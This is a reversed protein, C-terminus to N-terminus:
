LNSTSGSDRGARGDGVSTTADERRVIEHMGM